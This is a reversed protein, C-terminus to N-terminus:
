PRAAKQSAVYEPVVIALQHYDDKLEQSMTIMHQYHKRVGDEKFHALESDSYSGKLMPDHFSRGAINELDSECSTILSDFQRELDFLGAPRYTRMFNTLFEFKEASYNQRTTFVKLFAVFMDGRDTGTWVSERALWNLRMQDEAPINEQISLYIDPSIPRDLGLLRVYRDISVEHLPITTEEGAPTQLTSKLQEAELQTIIDKVDDGSVHQDLLLAAYSLKNDQTPTYLPSLVLDVEYDELTPFKDQFFALLEEHPVNYRETIESVVQDPLRRTALLDSKLRDYISKTFAADAM